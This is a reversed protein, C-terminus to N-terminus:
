VYFNVVKGKKSWLAILRTEELGERHCVNGSDQFYVMGQSLLFTFDGLAILLIPFNLAQGTPVLAFHGSLSRWDKQATM